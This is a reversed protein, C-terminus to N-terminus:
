GEVEVIGESREGLRAVFRHGCNWCYYSFREPDLREAQLHTSMCEPCSAVRYSKATRGSSTRVRGIVWVIGNEKLEKTRPTVSQIRLRLGRAIDENCVDPNAEIFERVQICRHKALCEVGYYAQISTDSLTM